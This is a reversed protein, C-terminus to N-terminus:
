PQIADQDAIADEPDGADLLLQPASELEEGTSTGSGPDSFVELDAPTVVSMEDWGAAAAADSAMGALVKISGLPFNSRETIVVVHDGMERPLPACDAAPFGLREIARTLADPPDPEHALIVGTQGPLAEGAPADLRLLPKAANLAARLREARLAPTALRQALGQGFSAELLAPFRAIGSEHLRAMLADEDGAVLPLDLVSGGAVVDDHLTALLAEEDPLAGVTDRYASEPDGPDLLNPARWSEAILAARAELGQQVFTLVGIITLVREKLSGVLGVFRRAAGLFDTMVVAETGSALFSLAAQRLDEQAERIAKPRFLRKRTAEDLKDITKALKKNAEQRRGQLTGNLTELGKLSQEVVKALNELYAVGRSMGGGEIFVPRTRQLLDDKLIAEWRAEREKVETRAADLLNPGEGEFLTRELKAIGEPLDAVMASFDPHDARLGWLIEDLIIELESGVGPTDIDASNASLPLEPPFPGGPDSERGCWGEVMAAALRAGAMEAVARSPFRIAAAGLSRVVGVLSRSRARIAEGVPGSAGEAALRLAVAERIADRSTPSGHEDIDEVLFIRSFRSTEGEIPLIESLIKEANEHILEPDDGAPLILVASLGAEDGIARFLFESLDSVIAAQPDSLDAVIIVEPTGKFRAVAMAIAAEPLETGDGELAAVDEEALGRGDPAGIALVAADAQWDAWRAKTRGAIVAGESGLAVVLLSRSM